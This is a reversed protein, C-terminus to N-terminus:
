NFVMKNKKKFDIAGILFCFLGVVYFKMAQLGLVSLLWLVTVLWLHIRPM